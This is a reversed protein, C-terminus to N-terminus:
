NIYEQIFEEKTMIKVGYNMATTMKESPKGDKSKVVLITTNQSVNSTVKGGRAAVDEGLKKDRFGTFVVKEKALNNGIIVNEKFTTFKKMVIIFKNAWDINDVIKQAYKDSFGEVQLIRDMLKQSSMKNYVELIDPFDNFLTTIRVEGMGFGFIGSAGLVNPITVDQIGKHINNYVISAMRDGFSPVESLDQESAALIKILTDYGAYYIKEVRKEGVQKIGLKAFFHAVLKICMTDPDDETFIDVGSDNWKYPIEPMQPEGSPKIVKVIHPIVDGSRTIQIKAGPGLSNDVVYKANFATAKEVEVGGLLTKNYWVRPKLRGWKSVQWEVENVVVEILNGELRMKFAFAYDPNGSVNREYPANPQVILGDIEFPTSNKFRLLTEILTDITINKVIERRVTTFGLTDLYDLQESPKQNIGDSVIEYAIFKIDKLGKRVTKAGIRGAVMNRPNAYDKSYKKKFVEEEMILEGRVNLTIDLDKPITDFYQALYSIDAGVTGDGRTYLKIKGKNMVMLCSVGDLKDELIYEEAKNASIWKAVDLEYEQVAIKKWKEVKKEDNAISSWMSNLKKNFLDTFKEKTAIDLQNWTKDSNLEGKIGLQNAVKKEVEQKHADWFANKADSQVSIKDMSGLWFPLEVRNEHHRIRAGIPVVYHPDRRKVTEKLMDYQWDNLGSTDGTNYYIDDAFLKIGHLIEINETDFYQQLKDDSYSSIQAIRKDM